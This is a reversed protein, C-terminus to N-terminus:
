ICNCWILVTCLCDTYGFSAQFFIFITLYSSVFDTHISHNQCFWARWSGAFPLFFHRQGGIFVYLPLLAVTGSMRLISVLHLHTAMEYELQKIGFIYCWCGSYLLSPQSWFQDLCNQLLSFKKGRGPNWGWVTWGMVISYQRHQSDQMWSHTLIM